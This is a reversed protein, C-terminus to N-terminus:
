SDMDSMWVCCLSTQILGGGEKRMIASRVLLISLGHFPKEQQPVGIM